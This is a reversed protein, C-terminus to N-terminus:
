LTKWEKGISLGTLISRPAIKLTDISLPYWIGSGEKATGHALKSEM